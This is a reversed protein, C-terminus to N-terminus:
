FWDLQIDVRLIIDVLDKGHKRRVDNIVSRDSIGSRLGRRRVFTRRNKQNTRRVSQEVGPV